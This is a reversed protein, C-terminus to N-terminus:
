RNGGAPKVLQFRKLEGHAVLKGDLMYGDFPMPLGDADAMNPANMLHVHLHPESTNGSNGALGLVDGRKVKQGPKVRLSHPQLHALLSYEADGHDLVVHNGAAHLPNSTGIAQDSLSDTATVVSGDAPALIPQGYCYYDALAKGEGAHTKGDKVMVIDHAFRQSRVAAHYNEALARGGWFVLWEGSFPLTFRTKPVYDLFASPYERPQSVDPRVGLTNIRGDPDFGVTVNAPVPLKSFRCRSRVIILSDKTIIEEDLVSDIAGLQAHIASGMASFKLSDGFATRMTESFEGWLGDTTGAGMLSRIERARTMATERSLTGGAAFAPSASVWACSLGIVVFRTFWAPMVVQKSM